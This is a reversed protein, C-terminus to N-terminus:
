SRTWPLWRFRRRAPPPALYRSVLRWKEDFEAKSTFRYVSDKAVRDLAEVVRSPDDIQFVLTSCGNHTTRGIFQSKCTAAVTPLIVERKLRELAENEAPDCMGDDRPHRLPIAVLLRWPFRARDTFSRYATNMIAVQRRGDIKREAVSWTPANGIM